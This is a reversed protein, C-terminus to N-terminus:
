QRPEIIIATGLTTMMQQYCEAASLTQFERTFTQGTHHSYVKVIYQM